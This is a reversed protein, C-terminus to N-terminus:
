EGAITMRDILVSGTRVRRRIDVDSGIAGIGTFMDALNGAITIEEVPYQIEGHEVWYGSVGRSYDGTILNVGFGMLDTVLLGTDMLKLLGNFDHPGPEVILNHVGGANGTTELGLKRASYSSLVYGQLVGDVVLDRAVTAVGEDDFPASAMGKPLHPEERIRIWDSFISEGLKDLLFSARRYLNGGSIAAIFHSFLSGAVPAEFLVPAQRTGLRRAGLRQVTRRGAIKGITDADVLQRYDRAQTYWGDRQMGTDDRAIVACDLNHRSYQWAGRFGHSNGYVNAGSLTSVSAGDSNSIRPDVERAAHECALALEIAQQPAIPWPHYLDLDPITTAMRDSNALGSCPDARTHAAISLAARVTEQLAPQSLDSTSASGKRQGDSDRLYVAIGLGKDRQHELTEIEGMRVTVNLGDGVGIDAEAADAGQRKAEALVFDITELLRDPQERLPKLAKTDSMPRIALLFNKLTQCQLLKILGCIYAFLRLYLYHSDRSCHGPILWERKNAHM